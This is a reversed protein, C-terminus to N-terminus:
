IKLVSTISLFYNEQHQCRHTSVRGVERKRYASRGKCGDDRKSIINGSCSTDASTAGKARPPTAHITPISGPLLQLRKAFGNKVMEYNSFCDPTFHESCLHPKRFEKLKGNWQRKICVFRKWQRFMDDPFIFVSVGQRATNSCWQAVCKEPM